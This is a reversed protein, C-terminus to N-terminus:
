ARVPLAGRLLLVLEEPVRVGREVPGLRQPLVADDRGRERAGRRVPGRDDQLASTWGSLPAGRSSDAAPRSRLGGAPPPVMGVTVWCMSGFSTRRDSPRWM